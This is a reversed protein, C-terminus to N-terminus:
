DRAIEQLVEMLEPMRFPKEILRQAGMVDAARLLVFDAQEDEINGVGATMAIIAFRRAYERQLVAILELGDMEPMSLDTLIIDPSVTELTELAEKGNCVKYVRYGEASLEDSLISRLDEEDEVLLISTM